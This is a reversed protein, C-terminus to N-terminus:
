PTFQLRVSYQYIGPKLPPRSIVFMDVKLVTTGPSLILPILDNSNTSKSNSLNKVTSFAPVNVTGEQPIPPLVILQGGSSDCNVVVEVSSSESEGSSVLGTPLPSGVTALKGSNFEEFTCAALSPLALIVNTTLVVGTMFLNKGLQIHFLNRFVQLNEGPKPFKYYGFNPM